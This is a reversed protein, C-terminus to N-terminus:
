DHKQNLTQLGGNLTEVSVGLANEITERAIESRRGSLCVLVIKKDTYPKILEPNEGLSQLPINISSPIPNYEKHEDKSRVDIVVVDQKEELLTDRNM